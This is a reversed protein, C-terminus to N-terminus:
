SVFIINSIQYICVKLVINNGNLDKCLTKFICSKFLTSRYNRYNQEYCLIVPYRQRHINSFLRFSIYVCSKSYSCKSM